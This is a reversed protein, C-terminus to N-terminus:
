ENMEEVQKKLSQFQAEHVGTVREIVAWAIGEQLMGEIVEVQTRLKGETRGETRGEALLEQAYTMLDGGLQPTQRQLAEQFLEIAERDQTQLIYTLFVRVYNIGGSPELSALTDLLEVVLGQWFRELHYAVLLLLQMLRAKLDGQVEEPQMGSQDILEHSFRPVWPWDRVVEAFLHAFETAYSWSRDGQYFVLPVIPRLETPTPRENLNVDWIRCCYKLLRFRMWRDPVSQHELLIYIWILSEDSVRQVEYLLDSESRRLDEDIFSGEALKLTSWDLAQSVEEPLYAQLFSRAEALDRLVAGVMADHPHPIEDAM